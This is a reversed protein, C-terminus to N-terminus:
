CDDKSINKDEMNAEAATASSELKGENTLPKGTKRGIRDSYKAFAASLASKISEPEKKRRKNADGVEKDAEKGETAAGDPNIPVEIEPNSPQM